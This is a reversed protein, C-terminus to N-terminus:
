YFPNGREVNKGIQLKVLTDIKREHNIEWYKIEDNLKYEILNSSGTQNNINNNEIQDFEGIKSKVVNGSVKSSGKFNNYDKFFIQSCYIFSCIGFVSFIAIALYILYMIGTLM